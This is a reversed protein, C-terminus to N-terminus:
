ATTMGALKRVLVRGGSGSYMRLFVCFDFNRRECGKLHFFIHKEYDWLHWRFSKNHNKFFKRIVKLSFFINM